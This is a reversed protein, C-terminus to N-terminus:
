TREPALVLPEDLTSRLRLFGITGLVTPVWLVLAHYVLVAAAAAGPSAGYLILAGALGSDLVGIGGPIPVVNGLYGIIYALTLAGVPMSTGFARFCVWLAAIDCWMYAIAGIQRWTPRRVEVRTERVVKGTVGMWRAFRGPTEVVAFRETVAPLLWFFAIAGIGVAGPVFGLLLPHPASMIGLGVLVGALGLTACNVASTLLFLVGSREMFRRMSGGKAKVVWAGIAIGGAGGVPVIAGFAMESLAIRAALLWTVRYFIMRFAIVYGVCSAIELVVALLVWWLSVERLRDLVGSLGPVALLLGGVLVVLVLLSVIGRRLRRAEDRGADAHRSELEVDRGATSM